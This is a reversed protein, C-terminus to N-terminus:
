AGQGQPVIVQPGDVVGVTVFRVLNKTKKIGGLLKPQEDTRPQNGRAHAARQRRIAHCPEPLEDYLSAEDVQGAAVPGKVRHAVPILISYRAFTAVFEPTIASSHWGHLQSAARHDGAGQRATAPAAALIGVTPRM